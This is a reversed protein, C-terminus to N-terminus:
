IKPHLLFSIRLFFPFMGCSENIHLEAFRDIVDYHQSVEQRWAEDAATHSLIPSYFEIPWRYEPTSRKDLTSDTTVSWKSYELLEDDEQYIDWEPNAESSFDLRMKSFGPQKAPNYRNKLWAALERLGLESFRPYQENFAADHIELYMEIEVGIRLEAATM